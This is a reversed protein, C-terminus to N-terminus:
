LKSKDSTSRFILMSTVFDIFAPLLLPKEAWGKKVFWAFLISSILRIYNTYKIIKKSGIFDVNRAEMFHHIGLITVFVGMIRLWQYKLKNNENNEDVIDTFKFIKIIINPTFILAPGIILYELAIGYHISTSLADPKARMTNDILDILKKLLRTSESPNDMLIFSILKKILDSNSSKFFNSIEEKTKISNLIDFIPGLEDSLKEKLYEINEIGEVTATKSETAM